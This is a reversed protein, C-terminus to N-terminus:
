NWEGGSKKLLAESIAQLALEAALRTIEAEKTDLGEVEQLSQIAIQTAHAIQVNWAFKQLNSKAKEFPGVEKVLDLPSDKPKQTEKKSM